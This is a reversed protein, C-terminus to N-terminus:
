VQYTLTFIHYGDGIQGGNLESRQTSASNNSYLYAVTDSGPTARVYIGSLGPKNFDAVGTSYGDSAPNFPL